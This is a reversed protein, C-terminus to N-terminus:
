YELRKNGLLVIEGVNKLGDYLRGVGKLSKMSMYSGPTLIFPIGATSTLVTSTSDWTSSSLPANAVIIPSWFDTM